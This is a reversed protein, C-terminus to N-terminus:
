KRASATKDRHLNSLTSSRFHCCSLSLDKVAFKLSVHPGGEGIAPGLVLSLRATALQHHSSLISAPDRM